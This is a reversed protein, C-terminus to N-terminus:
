FSDLQKILLKEIFHLLFSKGNDGHSMQLGGARFDRLVVTRFTGNDSAQFTYGGISKILSDGISCQPMQMAGLTHGM